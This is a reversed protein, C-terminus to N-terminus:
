GQTRTVTTRRRAAATPTPETTTVSGRSGFWFGVIGSFVASFVEGSIVGTICALYLFGLCLAVTVSGRIASNFIDLRSPTDM